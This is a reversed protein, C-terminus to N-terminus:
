LKPRKAASTKLIPIASAYTHPWTPLNLGHILLQTARENSRILQIITDRAVLLHIGYTTSTVTYDQAFEIYVQTKRPVHGLEALGQALM